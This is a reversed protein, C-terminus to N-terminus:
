QHLCKSHISLLSPAIEMKMELAKIRGLFAINQQLLDLIIRRFAEMFLEEDINKNICFHFILSGKRIFMLNLGFIRLIINVNSLDANM